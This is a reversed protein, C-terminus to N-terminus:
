LLHNAFEHSSCCSRDAFLLEHQVERYLAKLSTVHFLHEIAEAHLQGSACFQLATPLCPNSIWLKDCVEHTKEAEIDAQRM